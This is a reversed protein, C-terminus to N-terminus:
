RLSKYTKEIRFTMKTLLFFVQTLIEFELKKKQKETLSNSDTNINLTANSNINSTSNLYKVQGRNLQIKNMKSLCLLADEFTCKVNQFVFQYKGNFIAKLINTSSFLLQNEILFNLFRDSEAIIEM